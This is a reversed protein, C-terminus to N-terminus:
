IEIFGFPITTFLNDENKINTKIIRKDYVLKYDKFSESTFLFMDDFNRLIQQQKVSIIKKRDNQVIDRM